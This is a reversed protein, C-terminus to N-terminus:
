SIMSLSQSLEQMEEANHSSFKAYFEPQPTEVSVVSHGIDNLDAENLSLLKDYEAIKEVVEKMRRENRQPLRQESILSKSLELISRCFSTWKAQSRLFKERTYEAEARLAAM